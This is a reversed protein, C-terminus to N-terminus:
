LMPLVVDMKWKRKGGTTVTHQGQYKHRFTYRTHYGHQGIYRTVKTVWFVVHGNLVLYSPHLSCGLGQTDYHSGVPCVRRPRPSLTPPPSLDVLSVRWDLAVRLYFTTEQGGGSNALFPWSKFFFLIFFLSAKRRRFIRYIRTLLM